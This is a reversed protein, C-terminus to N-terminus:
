PLSMLAAVSARYLNELGRQMEPARFFPRWPEVASSDSIVFAAGLDVGRYEAVAFLAAAEMELTQVGEERYHRAEAVTERYFADCTWTPGATFALGAATLSAKLAETLRRSPYSFRAPALYHHSVGEDRVGGECVVIDGAGAASQLASAVGISLFAEAGLAILDELVMAATPAGIGFRGAVAVRGETEKLAHLGYRALPLPEVADTELIYRFLSEQYCMIVRPPMAFKPYFGSKILYDLFEKPSVISAQDHKGEFNPFPM